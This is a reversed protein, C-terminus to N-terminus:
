RFAPYLPMADAEKPWLTRLKAAADKITKGTAELVGFTETTKAFIDFRVLVRQRHTAIGWQGDKELTSNAWTRLIVSACTATIGLHYLDDDKAAECGKIFEARYIKEMNTFVHEPLKNVCWCSPFHIRGYVGDLLANHFQSFEFDLLKLESGVMLCNDPCPDHHIFAAFPSKPTFFQAAVAADEKISPHPEIGIASAMDHFKQISNNQIAERNPLPQIPGLNTRLTQFTDKSGSTAAHMKGLSKALAMLAAHAAEKDDGLLIHDLQTCAGFDEMVIVGSQRDGGYFTPAPSNPGCAETLIQLGAWDNFLRTASGGTKDPEYKENGVSVTQKVVVTKPADNPGDTVSCRYVHSRSSGGLETETQLQVPTNWTQALIHEAIPKATNEEPM